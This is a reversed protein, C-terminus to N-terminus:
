GRVRFPGAVSLPPVDAGFAGRAATEGYLRQEAVQDILVDFGVGERGGQEKLETSEIM